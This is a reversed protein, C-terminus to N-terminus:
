KTVDVVIRGKTQGKLIADALDPLDALGVTEILEGAATDPFDKALREWATRRRDVPCMVSDIGLLNIGRLLFPIVTTNLKNGGALGCSAVSGGYKIQTLVTALTNGGVADVCGAWRESQLPRDAEVDLESRPVIERAGLATLRDALESRGTSAHVEYGNENLIAVAVGGVGGNAGTVLVPGSEPTIGHDELAMVCLMATFGATGITMAKEATMGKPMPVLWDSNVRAKEAYGGWHAEGVRWGTLIVEEGQKYESSDTSEVVGAFDIGPVHPYHRVLRGIGKLVMGDKYNLTSHSVAVTVDGEPLRDDDLTEVSASVGKEAEELVLARFSGSM